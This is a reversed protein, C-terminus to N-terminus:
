PNLLIMLHYMLLHMIHSKRLGRLEIYYGLSDKTIKIEPPTGFKSQSELRLSTEGGNRATAEIADSLDDLAKEIYSVTAQDMRKRLIPMGYLFAESILGTVVLLMLVNGVLESVGKM